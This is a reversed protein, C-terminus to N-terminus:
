QAAARKGKFELRRRVDINLLNQDFALVPFDEEGYQDYDDDTEARIWVSDCSQRNPHRSCTSCSSVSEFTQARKVTKQLQKNLSVLEERNLSDVNIDVEPVGAPHM